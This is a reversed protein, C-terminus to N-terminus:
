ESEPFAIPDELIRLTGADGDLEAMIGLPISTNEIVHGVPFQYVVPYDRHAFYQDFVERLLFSEDPNNTECNRWLGLVVGALDDLLGASQLQMLMRDIQYPAEGVDELFLITGETRIQHPTGTM